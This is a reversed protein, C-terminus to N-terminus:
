SANRTQMRISPFGNQAFVRAVEPFMVPGRHQFQITSSAMEIRLSGQVFSPLQSLSKEVAEELSGSGSFRKFTLTVDLLPGGSPNVAPAARNALPPAVPGGAPNGTPNPRERHPGFNPVGPPMPGEVVANRSRFHRLAEQSVGYIFAAPIFAVFLLVGRWFLGRTPDFATRSLVKYPHTDPQNMMEFRARRSVIMLLVTGPAGAIIKFFPFVGAVLALLAGVGAVLVAIVMGVKPVPALVLVTAVAIWQWHRRYWPLSGASSRKAGYTSNVVGYSTNGVTRTPASITQPVPPIQPLNDLVNDPQPVQIASKCKPCAVRKGAL